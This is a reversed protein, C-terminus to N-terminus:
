EHRAFEKHIKNRAAEAVVSASEIDDFYGLDQRQGEFQVRVRYKNLRPVFFVNKHGTTNKVSRKHNCQNQSPTAPRLNSIYNNLKNGDIHDITPHIMDNPKPEGWVDMVLQYTKRRYRNGTNITLYGDKDKFGIFKQYRLSFIRGDKYVLYNTYVPHTKAENNM